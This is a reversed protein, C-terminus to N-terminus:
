SRDPFQGPLIAPHHVPDARFHEFSCKGGACLFDEPCFGPGPNKVREGSALAKEATMAVANGVREAEEFTHAEKGEPLITNDVTVMAGEAGQFFLAVEAGTASEVHKRMYGPWDATMITNTGWLTEGHMPFNVLVFKPKSSGVPYFGAVSVERDVLGNVRVNRVVGHEPVEAGGLVLDVPIASAAAADVAEGVKEQQYAIYKMDRGDSAIIKGWLGMTDPASHDHTCAIIVHEPPVSHIKDLYPGLDNRQIGIADVSVLALRQGGQELVLARVYIPDHVATSRRNYGFGALYQSTAPTVDFAVAGAKLQGGPFRSVTEIPKIDADKIGM